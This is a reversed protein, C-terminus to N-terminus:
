FGFSSCWPSFGMRRLKCSCNLLKPFRKLVLFFLFVFSFDQQTSLSTKAVLDALMNFKRAKWELKWSYFKFRHKLLIVQNHFQWICPEKKSNIQQVVFKADNNSLVNDWYHESAISFAWDIAMLKAMESSLNYFEKAVLFLVKGSHNRVVM